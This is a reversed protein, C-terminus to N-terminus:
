SSEEGVIFDIVEKIHGQMYELTYYDHRGDDWSHQFDDGMRFWHGDWKAKLYPSIDLHEESHRRYYTQGGNWPADNLKPKYQDHQDPTLLVYTAWAKDYNLYPSPERVGCSILYQIGRHTGKWQVYAGLLESNEFFPKTM